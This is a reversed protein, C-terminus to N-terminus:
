LEKRHNWTYRGILIADAEDSNAVSACLKKANAFALQKRDVGRGPRHLMENQWRSPPIAVLRCDTQEFFIRLATILVTFNVLVAINNKYYPQEVAVLCPGYSRVLTVIRHALWVLDESKEPELNVTLIIQGRSSMLAIWIPKAYALDIGVIRQFPAQKRQM